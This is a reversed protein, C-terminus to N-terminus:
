AECNASSCNRTLSGICPPQMSPPMWTAHQIKSTPKSSKGSPSWQNPPLALIDAHLDLAVNLLQHAPEDHEEKGMIKGHQEEEEGSKGKWQNSRM